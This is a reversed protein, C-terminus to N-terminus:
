TLYDVSGIALGNYDHIIKATIKPNRILCDAIERLIRATELAAMMRDPEGNSNCFADNDTSFEIKIM